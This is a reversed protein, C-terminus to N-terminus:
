VVTREAAVGTGAACAQRPPELCSTGRWGAGGGGWGCSAQRALRPEDLLERNRREVEAPLGAQTWAFCQNFDQPPNPASTCLPPSAALCPLRPAPPRRAHARDRSFARARGRGATGGLWARAQLMPADLTRMCPQYLFAFVCAALTLSLDVPM